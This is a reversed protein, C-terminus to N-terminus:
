GVRSILVYRAAVQVGFYAFHVAKESHELGLVIRSELHLHRMKLENRWEFIILLNKALRKTAGKPREERRAIREM